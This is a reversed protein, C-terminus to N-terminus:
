FVQSIVHLAENWLWPNVSTFFNNCFQAYSKVRSSVLIYCYTFVAMKYVWHQSDSHRSIECDLMCVSNWVVMCVDYPYNYSLFLTRQFMVFSM